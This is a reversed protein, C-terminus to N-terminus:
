KGQRQQRTRDPALAMILIATLVLGIGIGHSFGFTEDLFICSLSVASVPMFASFVGATAGSVRSVGQFWFWYALVTFVAGQDKRPCDQGPCLVSVLIGQADM